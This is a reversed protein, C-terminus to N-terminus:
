LDHQGAALRGAVGRPELEAAGGGGRVAPAAVGGARRGGGRGAPRGPAVGGETAGGGGPGPPRGPTMVEGAGAGPGAGVAALGQPTAAAGGAHSCTTQTTM